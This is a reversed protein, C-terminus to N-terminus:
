IHEEDHNAGKAEGISYVAYKVTDDEANKEQVIETKIDYGDRRLELIRAGLRYIHLENYAQSPNISGHDKIYNLIKQKQTDSM